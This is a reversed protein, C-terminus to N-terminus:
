SKGKLDNLTERCYDLLGLEALEDEVKEM